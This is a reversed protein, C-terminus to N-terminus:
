RQCDFVRLEAVKDGPAAVLVLGQSSQAGSPGPVDRGYARSILPRAENLGDEVSAPAAVEGAADLPLMRVEEHPGVWSLWPLPADVFMPSGRGLGETPLVLLSEVGGNRVRARLLVGGAADISEGDDRAVVLVDPNPGESLVLADYASVHGTAPTLRRVSGSPKGGVDVAVMEIWGFSRAEGVAEIDASGDSGRPGEPRRALWLVFFGAGSPVARPMEADSDSPSIANADAAPQGMSFSAGRIVGRAAVGPPALVTEDWVALGHLGSCALDFALSEDGNQPIRGFAKEAGHPDVAHLVLDRAASPTGGDRSPGRLALTGAVIQNSCSALSPPPADGLTPGLDVVRDDAATAGVIAVAAVRGASTRHILAVASGDSYAVADGIDLEDLAAGDDVRVARETAHCRAALVAPKPDHAEFPADLAADAPAGAGSDRRCAALAAFLLLARRVQFRTM